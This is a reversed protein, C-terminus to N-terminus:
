VRPRVVLHHSERLVRGPTRYVGWMRIEPRRQVDMLEMRRRVCKVRQRETSVSTGRALGIARLAVTRAEIEGTTGSMVDRLAM